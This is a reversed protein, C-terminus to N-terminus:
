PKLNLIDFLKDMCDRFMITTEAIPSLIGYEICTCIDAAEIAYCIQNAYWVEM